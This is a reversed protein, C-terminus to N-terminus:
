FSGGMKHNKRQLVLGQKNIGGMKLNLIGTKVLLDFMWCNKHRKERFSSFQYLCNLCCLLCVLYTSYFSMFYQSLSLNTWHKQWSSFSLSSMSPSSNHLVITLNLDICPAIQTYSLLIMSSKLLSHGITISIMQFITTVKTMWMLLLVIFLFSANQSIPMKHSWSQHVQFM